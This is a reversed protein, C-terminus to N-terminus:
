LGKRLSAKPSTDIVIMFWPDEKSYNVKTQLFQFIKEVVNIQIHNMKWAVWIGGLFGDCEVIKIADHGVSKLINHGGEFSVRTEVLVLVDLIYNNFCIRAKNTFDKSGVWLLEM